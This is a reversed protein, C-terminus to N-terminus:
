RKEYWSIGRRREMEGLTQLLGSDLNFDTIYDLLTGSPILDSCTAHLSLIETYSSAQMCTTWTIGVGPSAM